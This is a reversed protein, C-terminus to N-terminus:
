ELLSLIGKAQRNLRIIYEFMVNFTEISSVIKKQSQHTKSRVSLKRRTMFDNIWGDSYKLNPNRFEPNEKLYTELIKKAEKRITSYDVKLGNANRTLILNHLNFECIAPYIGKRGGGYDRFRHSPLYSLTEKKTIARYVVLYPIKNGEAM